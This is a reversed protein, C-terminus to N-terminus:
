QVRELTTTQAISPLIAKLIQAALQDTSSEVQRRADVASIEIQQRAEQVRKQAGARAATLALEREASWQKLRQERAQFIATRAARLRTEYELTKAEAAAIAAQAQEMAGTTRARREALVKLLPTHVLARYAAILILFFLITPVSGLALEGLQKLLEDM